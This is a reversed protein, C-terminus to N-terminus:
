NQENIRKVLFYCFGLTTIQWNFGSFNVSKETLDRLLKVGAKKWIKGTVGKKLDKVVPALPLMYYWFRLSNRIYSVLPQM